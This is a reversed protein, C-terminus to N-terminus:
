SFYLENKSPIQSSNARINIIFRSLSYQREGNKMVGSWYSVYNNLNDRADKGGKRTQHNRVSNKRTKM